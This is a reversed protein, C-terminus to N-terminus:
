VVWVHICVDSKPMNFQMAITALDLDMNNEVSVLLYGLYDACDVVFGANGMVLSPIGCINAINPVMGM